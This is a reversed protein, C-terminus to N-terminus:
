DNNEGNLADFATNFAASPDGHILDPDNRLTMWAGVWGARMLDLKGDELMKWAGAAHQALRDNLDELRTLFEGVIAADSGDHEALRDLANIANTRETM